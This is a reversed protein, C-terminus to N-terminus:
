GGPNPVESIQQQNMTTSVDGNEAQLLPMEGTVKVTANGGAIELTVNRTGPPGLLINVEHNQERFGEHSVTLMYRGPALFFFRFVGDGDTKAAQMTGKTTDRLQVIADPVVAKSADTVVGILAGSTTTQAPLENSFVTLLFLSSVTLLIANFKM